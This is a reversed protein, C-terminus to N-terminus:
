EKILECLSVYARDGEGKRLIYQTLGMMWRKTAITWNLGERDRIKVKRGKQKHRPACTVSSKQFASEDRFGQCPVQGM